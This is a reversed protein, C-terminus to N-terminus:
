RLRCRTTSGCSGSGRPCRNAPLHQIRQGGAPCICRRNRFGGWWGPTSRIPTHVTQEGYSGQDGSGPETPEVGTRPFRGASQCRPVQVADDGGTACATTSVPIGASPNNNNLGTRQVPQLDISQRRWRRGGLRPSRRSRPRPKVLNPCCGQGRRHGARLSFGHLCVGGDCHGHAPLQVLFSITM